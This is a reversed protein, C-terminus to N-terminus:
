SGETEDSTASPVGMRLAPGDPSILTDSTDPGGPTITQNQAGPVSWGRKAAAAPNNMTAADGRELRRTRAMQERRERRREASDDGLGNLVSTGRGDKIRIVGGTSRLYGLRDASRSQRVVRRQRGGGEDVIVYKEAISVVTASGVRDGVKVFRQRGGASVLARVRDGLRIVGLYALGSGESAATAGAMPASGGPPDPDPGDWGELNAVILGIDELGPNSEPAPQNPEPESAVIPEVLPAENSASGGAIMALALGAAVVACGRGVWTGAMAERRSLKSQGVMVSDGM